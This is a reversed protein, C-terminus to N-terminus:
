NAKEQTVTYTTPLDSAQARAQQAFKFCYFYVQGVGSSLVKTLGQIVWM